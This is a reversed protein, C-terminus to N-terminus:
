RLFEEGAMIEAALYALGGLSIDAWEGNADAPTDFSANLAAFPVSVRIPRRDYKYIVCPLKDGAGVIAQDQWAPRCGTGSASSKCEISFPWADNDPTLDDLGKGQYQRLNRSFSVGTLLFLEKAVTREFSAGKNRSHASM